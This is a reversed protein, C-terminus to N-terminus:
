DEDVVRMEEQQERWLVVLNLTMTPLPQKLAVHLAFTSHIFKLPWNLFSFLPEPEIILSRNISYPSMITHILEWQSYFFLSGAVFNNGVTYALPM